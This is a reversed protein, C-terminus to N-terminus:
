SGYLVVRVLFCEPVTDDIFVTGQYKRAARRVSALGIGHNAANEKTTRLEEKVRKLKGGYSNEINILLNKRDYKVSLKIYKKKIAKEAGEVANELLNGLILSIDAGKFSMEMPISLEAQFDITEKGSNKEM